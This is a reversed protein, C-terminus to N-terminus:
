SRQHPQQSTQPRPQYRPSPRGGNEPVWRGNGQRCDCNVTRVGEKKCYFCRIVKPKPCDNIRHGRENCNWCVGTRQPPEETKREPRPESQDNVNPWSVMNYQPPGTRTAHSNTNRWTQNFPQPEVGGRRQFPPRDQHFTGQNNRFPKSKSYYATEPVLAQAPNPPPRYLSKERVYSEYNEAEKMMAQVSTFDERRMTLKYEPRTNCYIRNLKEESTFGGRRRMLTLLAVVFNKFPEELGQTRYRIEEDLNRRYGPPLYQAEFAIQFDYFNTWLERENRYWLLAKGKLLEPLAKLIDDPQLDYCDIMEGLRELFSVPNREGDFYLNWKRVLTCIRAASSENSSKTNEPGPNTNVPDSPSKLTTYCSMLNDKPISYTVGTQTSLRAPERLPFSQPKRLGKDSNQGSSVLEALARKVSESSDTPSLGLAERIFTTEDLSVNQMMYTEKASRHDVFPTPTEHSMPPEQLPVYCASDYKNEERVHDKYQTYSPVRRLFNVFRARLEELRGDSPLGLRDMENILEQKRMHYVWGVKTDGDEGNGSPKSATQKSVAPREGRPIAGARSTETMTTETIALNPNTTTTTPNTTNTTSDTITPEPVTLQHSDSPPPTTVTIDPATTQPPKGPLVQLQLMQLTVNWIRLFSKTFM